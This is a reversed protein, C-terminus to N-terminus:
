SLYERLIAQDSFPYKIGRILQYSEHGKGAVLLADAPTLLDVALALAKRRDPEVLVKSCSALGPLVDAIIAQPDEDRPNDSSLVAIDSLSAVAEGMLPRKGRDRNGGCGFLTIVRAFGASRLASIAKTLADPTHAYDVFVNMGARAQIREM